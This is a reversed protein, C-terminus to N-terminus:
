RFVHEFFSQAHAPPKGPRRRELEPLTDRGMPSETATRRPREPRPRRRVPSPSPSPRSHPRERDALSMRNLTRELDAPRPTDDDPLSMDDGPEALSEEDESQMEVDAPEYASSEDGSAAEAISLGDDTLDSVSEGNISAAAGRIPRDVNSWAESDYAVSLADTDTEIAPSPHTTAELSALHTMHPGFSNPRLLITHREGNPLDKSFSVVNHWRATCYTVYRALPDDTKWVLKLPTRFVEVVSGGLCGNYGEDIPAEFEIGFPRGPRQQGPAQLWQVIEGEVVRVMKESHLGRRRLDKRVGRLSITFRGAASSQEDHQPPAPSPALQTRPLYPPLPVPFTSRVSAIPADYDSRQPAVVHPNSLFRTNERRLAKRKGEIKSPSSRAEFPSADRVGNKPSIGHLHAFRSRPDRLIAPFSMPLPIDPGHTALLSTEVQLGDDQPSLIEVM